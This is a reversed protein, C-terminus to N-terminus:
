FDRKLTVQELESHLAKRFMVPAVLCYVVFGLWVFNLVVFATDYDEIELTLSSVRFVVYMGLLIIIARAEAALCMQAMLLSEHVQDESHHGRDSLLELGSQPEDVALYGRLLVCLLATNDPSHTFAKRLQDLNDQDL